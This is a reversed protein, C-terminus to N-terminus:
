RLLLQILFPITVISMLTSVFVAKSALKYDSNYRVAIIATNAAAPMATLLVPITILFGEKGLLKLALFVVMPIVVLRILSTLMVKYDKVIDSTDVESLIFGICMMSLPTVTAGIMKCTDFIIAPLSRSTLFLTFGIVVAVLSPNFLNLLRKYLPVHANKGNERGERDLLHVGYSWTLLNFSLNYIAAYFVGLDGFVAYVVPYGMYGVNSFVCIFRHIDRSKGEVGILRTYLRSFLIAGAYVFFSILLLVGSNILVEMSFDFTMSTVIFAPLAVNIVLSSLDKVVVDSVMKRKKVFYGTVILLFLMTVQNVGVM